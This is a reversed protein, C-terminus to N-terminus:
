ARTAAVSWWIGEVDDATERWGLERLTARMREREELLIGSLIIEGDETIAMAILPLLDRLVSSIINALAVRVPAVLPLLVAADGAIVHVREAVANRMVNDNADAIADDDLEIAVVRSAGLKAAAIALIASGAGLDAVVDGARLVRPLLRVVGRTTPHDGTGFAMGPEIVITTSPEDDAVLWPPSVSLAGLAHRAIGQKWAESWDVPPADAVTWTAGADSTRVAELVADVNHEPPFHTVLAGADEHVGQAGTAFLAALVNDYVDGM